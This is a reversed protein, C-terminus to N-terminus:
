MGTPSMLIWNFYRFQLFHAHDIYDGLTRSSSWYFFTYFTPTTIAAGLINIIVRDSFSFILQQQHIHVKSDALFFLVICSTMNFVSFIGFVIESQCQRCILCFVILVVETPGHIHEGFWWNTKLVYISPLRCSDYVM